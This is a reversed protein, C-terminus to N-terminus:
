RGTVTEFSSNFILFVKCIVYVARPCHSSTKGYSAKISVTRLGFLQRISSRYFINPVYEHEFTTSKDRIGAGNRWRLHVPFEVAPWAVRGIFYFLRIPLEGLFKDKKKRLGKFFSM